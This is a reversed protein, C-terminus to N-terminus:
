SDPFIDPFHECEDCLVNGDVSRGIMLANLFEPKDPDSTWRGCRSCRNANEEQELYIFSSGTDEVLWSESRLSEVGTGLRAAVDDLFAERVPDLVADEPLRESAPASVVVSVSVLVPEEKYM